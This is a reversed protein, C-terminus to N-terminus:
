ISINNKYNENARRVAKIRKWLSRNFFLYIKMYSLFRFLTKPIRYTAFVTIIWSTLAIVMFVTHTDFITAVLYFIFSSILVFCFVCFNLYAIMDGLMRGKVKDQIWSNLPVKYIGAFFATAMIFVIFLNGTPKIIFILTTFISLGAGGVPVMGTEVKKGSLLGSVICGAAISVAVLALVFGTKTKSFELFGPGHEYLNMQILSGILWFTALGLIVNNLGKTKKAYEWSRIFFRLPDVPVNTSDIPKSEKAKIMISILWSVVAMSILIGGIYYIQDNHIDAVIGGIFSGILVGLFTLMEIAGTGFSIGERGGIDRILGYKAPSLFCSQLGMLFMAVLVIYINELCFGTFAIIMIPIEILKMIVIIKRKSYFKSFRGALPSFFIYPLVLMGAAASIVLESKDEAVWIVAIFSIMNKLNHDNLVAFFNMFFLPIWRKM